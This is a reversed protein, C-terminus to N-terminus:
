TLRRVLVFGIRNARRRQPIIVNREQQQQAGRGTGKSRFNQDLDGRPGQWGIEKVPQGFPHAMIGRELIIQLGQEGTIGSIALSQRQRVMITQVQNHFIVDSDQIVVALHLTEFFFQIVGIELIHQGLYIRGSLELFVLRIVIGAPESDGGECWAHIAARGPLHLGIERRHIKAALFHLKIGPIPRRRGQSPHPFGPPM